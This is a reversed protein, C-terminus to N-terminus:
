ANSFAGQDYAVGAEDFGFRDRDAYVIEVGANRPLAGVRDAQELMDKLDTTIRFQMKRQDTVSAGQDLIKVARIFDSSTGDSLLTVVRAQLFRKYNEDPMPFLADNETQGAFPVFDFPSGARDFGFRPDLIRNSSIPRNVGLRRGIADLHVGKATEIQRMLQIEELALIADEILIDRLIQVLARLRPSNAWQGIILNLHSQLTQVM